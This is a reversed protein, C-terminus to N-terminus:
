KLSKPIFRVYRKIHDTKDPLGENDGQPVSSIKQRTSPQQIHESLADEIFSKKPVSSLKSQEAEYHRFASDMFPSPKIQIKKTQERVLAEFRGKESLKIFEIDVMDYPSDSTKTLKLRIKLCENGGFYAAFIRRLEISTLFDQGSESTMEGLEITDEVVSFRLLRRPCPRKKFPGFRLYEVDFDFRSPIKHSRKARKSGQIPSSTFDTPQIDSPSRKRSPSPEPENNPNQRGPRQKTTPKPLTPITTVDGQLVDPSERSNALRQPSKSRFNSGNERNSSSSATLEVAARRANAAQATFMEDQDDPPNPKRRNPRIRSYSRPIKMYEEVQRYEEQKRPIVNRELKSSTESSVPSVRRPSTQLSLQTARKGIPDRPKAHENNRPRKNPRGGQDFDFPEDLRSRSKQPLSTPQQAKGQARVPGSDRVNRSLNNTPKFAASSQEHILFTDM